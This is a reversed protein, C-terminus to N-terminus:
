QTNTKLRAQARCEKCYMDGFKLQIGEDQFFVSVYAKKQENTTCDAPWGSAQQKVRIFKNMFGAFLGEGNINHQSIEYQWVEIIELMKYGKEIAKKIEVSVWTGELAQEDENHLCEDQNLDLVCSRCLSFMLKDNAKMPLVPHYLDQPPLIKCKILGNIKELVLKKCEEGVYVSPHGVPFIGYKCIYPYM